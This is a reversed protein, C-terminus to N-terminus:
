PRRETHPASRRVERGGSVSPTGSSPQPAPVYAHRLPEGRGSMPQAAMPQSEGPPSPPRPAPQVRAVFAPTQRLPRDPPPPSEYRSHGAAKANPPRDTTMAPAYAVPRSVPAVPRSVPRDAPAARWTEHPSFKVQPSEIQESVGRPPGFASASTFAERPAASYAGAVTDNVYRREGGGRKQDEIFRDLDGHGLHTNSLNSARLYGPSAHFPPDYPENYGLPVWGVKPRYIPGPNTRPYHEGRWAVLAPAYVPPPGVRPGPVWAWGFPGFVWRGYHCPAFGWPEGAIWTWGWPAIWNWYGYHYPAWGVPVAPIWVMGYSPESIWQGYGDLDQYGVVDRSVYDATLSQNERQDRDEAWLDLSDTNGATTTDVAPEAGAVLEASQDDRVMTGGSPGSVEAHGNWVALYSRGNADDVDVRYGGPQQLSIVGAPTDVDFHDDADMARIHVNMSGATMSLRVHQDDVVVVQVATRSGLRLATSGVHVEARSGEDIWLKDGGTLPRNLVDDTWADAGAAQMSGHGELYNVRAVRGPPDSPDASAAATALSCLLILLPGLWGRVLPSTTNRTMDARGSRVEANSIMEVALRASPAAFVVRQRAKRLIFKQLRV